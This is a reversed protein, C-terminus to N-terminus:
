SPRNVYCRVSGESIRHSADVQDVPAGNVLETILCRLQGRTQQTASLLVSDGPAVQILRRWPSRDSTVDEQQRNNLSWRVQVPPVRVAPSYVVFLLLHRTNSPPAQLALGAAVLVAAVM